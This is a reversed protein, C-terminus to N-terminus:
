PAQEFALQNQNKCWEGPLDRKGEQRRIISMERKVRGKTRLCGSQPHPASTHWSLPLQRNKKSYRSQSPQLWESNLPSSTTVTPLARRRDDSHCWLCFLSTTVPRESDKQSSLLVHSGRNEDAGSGSQFCQRLKLGLFCLYETNERAYKGETEWSRQCVLLFNSKHREAM